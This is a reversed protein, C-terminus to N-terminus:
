HEEREASLKREDHHALHDKVLERIELLHENAISM